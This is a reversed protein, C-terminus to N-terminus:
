ATCVIMPCREALPYGSSEIVEVEAFLPAARDHLNRLTPFGLSHDAGATLPGTRVPEAQDTTKEPVPEAGGNADADEPVPGSM